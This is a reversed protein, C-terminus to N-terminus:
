RDNKTIHYSLSSLGVELDENVLAIEEPVSIKIPAFNWIGRVGGAILVDAASQAFEKPLAIIGVDILKRRVVSEMKAVDYVKVGNIESGIIRKDNDFFAAVKFNLKDFLESNALAAGLYGAGVIAAQRKYKLGLFKKIQKLLYEVDYGMGHLGLNGCYSLDRRITVSPIELTEGLQVSSILRVNQSLFDELARCYLPLRNITAQSINEKM